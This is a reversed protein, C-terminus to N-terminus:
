RKKKYRYEYIVGFVFCRDSQFPKFVYFPFSINKFCLGALIGPKFENLDKQITYQVSLGTYFNNCVNYGLESWSFFFSQSNKNIAQSYQTQSSFYFSKQEAEANFALSLGNFRGASVGLMPIIRFKEYAGTTFKKGGYVSFTEANEYNYRLEGYWNGATQLHCIPQIAPKTKFYNYLEAGIKNQANMCQRVAISLLLLLFHKKM